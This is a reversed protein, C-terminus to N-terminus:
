PYGTATVTCQLNFILGGGSPWTAVSLGTNPPLMDPWLGAAPCVAGASASCATISCSSLGASPTDVLLSGDAASPGANAVTVTYSTTQGSALATVHNTKTISLNVACRFGTTASAVNDSVSTEGLTATVLTATNTASNTACNDLRPTVTVTVTGVSVPATTTGAGIPYIANATPNSATCTVTGSGTGGCQWATPTAVIATATFGTPLTDTLRLPNSAVATASQGTAQTSAYVQDAIPRGINQVSIVYNLTVGATATSAPTSKVARLNPLLTVDETAPGAELGSHHSGAVTSTGGSAYSTNASYAAGTRNAAVGSAPAIMRATASTRTPDLFVAGAPNHYTGATATDPISAAFSVTISGNQPLFFSGITLTTNGSSPVVGPAAGSARLSVATASNASTASNVPLGAPLVAATSEAGAANSNAAPPPAPSYSYTTAPSTSYTWGPPLGIDLLYLNTAAGGSNVLNLKYIAQASTSANVSPTTTSKTVSVSPLCWAGGQVGGPTGGTAVASGAGGATANYVKPSGNGGTGGCCADQGSLGGTVVTTAGAFNTLVYGGGAGGGPGHNYYNSRGGYGGNARLTLGAGTGSGALVVVSGGAGGGGAADTAANPARNHAHYGSADIVGATATLAGARIVVIGGGSAGSGSIPGQAGNAVTATGPPWTTISNAGTANNATGAGGGGGMVLRTVSNSTAAGGLGGAANGTNGGAPQNLIGGSTNQNWANGGRGGTGANSGGGGGANLQNGGNGSVAAPDGDNGGGGANSRANRGFAGAAYGQGLLTVYNVPTATGDFVAFPTGEIGEGKIAGNLAAVTSTGNYDGDTYTGGARSATGNLGAGGRFGSGAASITGTITLGGAVDLAVVGGTGQGSATAIAWRDASVTGSVIAASYQPVWVVQWSRVNGAGMSQIYTNTLARNLSLTTGSVLTIQAYEHLGANAPTSSDQMQMILILDGARLSRTNSRQGAVSAVSISTASAGTSGSGAHYSNVVGTPTAPGDWGPIACTQSLAALCTLGLALAALGRRFISFWLTSFTVSKVQSFRKNTASAILNVDFQRLAARRAYGFARTAREM